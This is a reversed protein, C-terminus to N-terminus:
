SFCFPHSVNIQSEKAAVTQFNHSSRIIQSFSFKQHATLTLKEREARQREVVSLCTFIHAIFGKAKICCCFAPCKVANASSYLTSFGHSAAWAANYLPELDQPGHVWQFIHHFLPTKVPFFTCFSWKYPKKKKKFLCKNQKNVEPQRPNQNCCEAPGENRRELQPAWAKNSRLIHSRGEGVLSWVRTGQIPLCIQLRQVVLSTGM